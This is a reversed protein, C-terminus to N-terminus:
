PPATSALPVLAARVLWGRRDGATVLWWEGSLNTVKSVLQVQTGSALAALKAADVMPRERLEQAQVLKVLMGPQLPPPAPIAPVPPAAQPLPARAEATTGGGSAPPVVEIPEYDFAVLNLERQLEVALAALWRNAKFHIYPVGDDIEYDLDESDVYVFSVQRPEYEIRIRLTHTRVHLAAVFGGEIDAEAVWKRRTLASLITGKLKGLEVAKPLRIPPPMELPDNAAAALPLLLAAALAAALSVRACRM